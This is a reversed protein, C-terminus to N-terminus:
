FQFIRLNPEGKACLIVLSFYASIRFLRSHSSSTFSSCVHALVDDDKNLKGRVLYLFYM